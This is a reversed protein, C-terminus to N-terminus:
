TNKHVNTWIGLILNKQEPKHFQRFKRNYGCEEMKKIFRLEKITKPNVPEELLIVTSEDAKSKEFGLIRSPPYAYGEYLRVIIDGVKAEKALTTNNKYRVSDIQYKETDTVQNIVKEEGIDYAEQEAETYDYEHLKQVWLSNGKPKRTLKSKKNGKIKPPKYITKLYKVYEPSLPELMLSRVFGRTASVTEANKFEVICETLVNASNGSVNASGILAFAGFVFAKAHLNEYSYLEVGNKIYKEIEIPNTSGSRICNESADVVLVDGSELRLYKSANKGLYAVAVYRNTNEKARRSIHEWVKDTILQM